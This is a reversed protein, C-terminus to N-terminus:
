SRAAPDRMQLLPMSVSELCIVGLCVTIGAMMWSWLVLGTLL